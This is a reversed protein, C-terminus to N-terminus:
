PHYLNNSTTQNIANIYTSAIINRKNLARHYRDLQSMVLTSAIDSLPAFLRKQLQLCNGDRYKIMTKLIENNASVALGGEGSTICKTPHFSFVVIDAASQVKGNFPIGQACDEIVPCGLSRIGQVDAFVGYIHPAIVARTKKSFVKSVTEPTMVWETGVDCLVPTAGSYCVYTPLIVEDGAKVRLGLLALYIAASGSSVAVGGALGVWHALRTELERTIDGQGIMGSKMVNVVAEIDSKTIWPKSHLIPKM